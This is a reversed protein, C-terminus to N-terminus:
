GNEHEKFFDCVSKTAIGMAWAYDIKGKKIVPKNETMAKAITKILELKENDDM